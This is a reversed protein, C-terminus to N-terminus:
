VQPMHALERDAAVDADDGVAGEVDDAEEDDVAGDADPEDDVGFAGSNSTVLGGFCSRPHRMSMRRWGRWQRGRGGCSMGGETRAPDALVVM